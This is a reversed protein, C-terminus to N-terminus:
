FPYGIGFVLRTQKLGQSDFTLRNFNWRDGEDYIPDYMKLAWDLRITFFGLNYRLGIGANMGVQTYFDDFKFTYEYDKDTGWVNGIDAFIAPELSESIPFRYEISTLLKLNDFGGLSFEDKSDGPGLSFPEWARMDTAGGAIYNRDYPLNESVGYPVGLGFFFRMAIRSKNRILFQKRIDTEVKFFQSYQVGFIEHSSTNSFSDDILRLLNGAMEFKVYLNWPNDIIPDRNQNFSFTYILSNVLVNQTNIEKFRYIRRMRNRLDPDSEQLLDLYSPDDQFVYDVFDYISMNETVGPNYMEYGERFIQINELDKSRGEYYTEPNLHNTYQTNFISLKHTKFDSPQLFYNLQANYNIRGLGINNQRSIGADISSTPRQKRLKGIGLQNFLIWRPFKLGMQFSLDYANLFGDSEEVDDNSVTGLTLSLSTSLNEAGRFVNRRFAEVGITTGISLFESYSAEMLAEFSQRKKPTLQFTYNIDPSDSQPEEKVKRLNFNDLIYYNKKSDSVEDERYLDGPSIIQPYTIVKDKYYTFKRDSAHKDMYAYLNKMVESADFSESGKQTRIHILTDKIFQLGRKNYYRNCIIEKQASDKRTCDVEKDGTGELIEPKVLVTKIKGINNTAFRTELSDHNKVVFTLPYSYPSTNATDSEFYMDQKNANFKYYGNNRLASQYYELEGKLAYDDLKKGVEINSNKSYDEIIEAVATDEIEKKYSEILTPEGADIKYVVKRKKDANLQNVEEIEYTVKAKRYGKLVFYSQLTKTTQATYKEKLVVPPQGIKHFFRAFFESKGVYEPHDYVLYLSDLLHQRNKKKAEKPIEEFEEFVEILDKNTWNYFYLGMPFILFKSNPRQRVFENLTLNGFIKKDEYKFENRVLLKEDEELMNTRCSVLSIMFILFLSVYFLYKQM